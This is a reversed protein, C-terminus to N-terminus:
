EREEHNPRIFGMFDVEQSQENSIHELQSDRSCVLGSKEEFHELIKLMPFFVLEGAQEDIILDFHNFDKNIYINKFLPVTLQSTFHAVDQPPSLADSKTSFLCLSKSRIRAIPYSPSSPRGYLKMNVTQGYDHMMFRKYKVLQGFHRLVKMSSSFPIQSWYGRVIGTKGKGSVLLNVMQCSGDVVTHRAGCLEGLLHRMRKADRPFPGHTDIDTGDVAALFILRALSTIHEMYAVPALAVVPEIRDAYHPRASLLGFVSFTAQSHGVYGVKPAGTMHRVYDVVTPVDGLAFDDLSYNWFLKDKPSLYDHRISFDTGRMSMLWVDYGHNALMMPGNIFSTRNLIPMQENLVTCQHDVPSVDRSNILWISSSELLGHNFIVPRKLQRSKILPNIVRVVHLYYGDKTRAYHTETHYGRLKLIQEQQIPHKILPITRATIDPSVM